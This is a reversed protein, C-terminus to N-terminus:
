IDALNDYVTKIAKTIVKWSFRKEVKERANKGM